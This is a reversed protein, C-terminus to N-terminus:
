HGGGPKQFLRKVERHAFRWGQPTKVYRDHWEGMSFPELPLPLKADKTKPDYNVAMYYSVGEANTEDKVTIRTDTVLHRILTTESGRKFSELLQARGTFPKGGRIWTGDATWLDVAADLEGHDGLHVLDIVLDRCEDVIERKTKVDM